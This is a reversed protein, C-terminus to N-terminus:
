IPLALNQQGIKSTPPQDKNATNSEGIPTEELPAPEQADLLDEQINVLNFKPADDKTITRPTTTFDRQALEKLTYIRKGLKKNALQKIQLAKM